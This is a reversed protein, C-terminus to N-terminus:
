SGAAIEALVAILAARGTTGPPNSPSHSYSRVPSV